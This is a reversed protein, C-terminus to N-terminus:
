SYFKLLLVELFHLLYAYAQQRVFNDLKSFLPLKYSADKVVQLPMHFQTLM